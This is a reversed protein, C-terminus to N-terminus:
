ASTTGEQQEDEEESPVFIEGTASLGATAIIEVDGQAQEFAHVPADLAADYAAYIFEIEAAETLMKSKELAGLERNGLRAKRVDNSVALEAAWRLNRMVEERKSREELEAAGRRTILQGILGGVFALLPTGFALLYVAWTPLSTM